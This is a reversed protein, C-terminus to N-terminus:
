VRGWAEGEGLHALLRPQLPGHVGGARQGLLGGVRDWGRLPLPRQPPAHPRADGRPGDRMAAAGAIRERHQVVAAAHQPHVVHQREERGRGQDVLELGVNGPRQGLAVRGDGAQALLHAAELVGRVADPVVDAGQAVPGRVHAHPLAALQAPPRQQRRGEVHERARVGEVALAQQGLGDLVQQPRLPPPQGSMQGRSIAWSVELPRHGLAWRARSRACLNLLDVGAVDDGEAVTGAPATGGAPAPQCAPLGLLITWVQDAATLAKAVDDIDALTNMGYLKQVRIEAGIEIRLTRLDARTLGADLTEILRALGLRLEQTGARAPAAACALLLMAPLLFRPLPVPLTRAPHPM